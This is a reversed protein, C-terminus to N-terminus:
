QRVSPKRWKVIAFASGKKFVGECPPYGERPMVVRRRNSRRSLIMLVGSTAATVM